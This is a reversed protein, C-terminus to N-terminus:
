ILVSEVPIVKLNNRGDTLLLTSRYQSWDIKYNKDFRGSLEHILANLANISYMADYEKKRNIAITSNLRKAGEGEVGYVVIAGESGDRYIYGSLSNVAVQGQESFYAAVISEACHSIMAMTTFTCLLQSRM